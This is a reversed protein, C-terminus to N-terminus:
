FRTFHAERRSRLDNIDPYFGPPPPPPMHSTEGFIFGPPPPPPMGSSFSASDYPPIGNSRSEERLSEEMARRVQEEESMGPPVYENYQERARAYGSPEARPTFRPTSISPFLIGKAISYVLDMIWKLPGKVYAMGVLIGALHGYFSANPVFLQILLLEVWVAYRAPVIIPIGMVQTLYNSDYYTTLVKLAFIVGSFGVACQDYDGLHEIALVNLAVLVANTLITFIALIYAFKVSGFRRELSRGKIAFSVMNYYLHWDDAHEFAAFILRSYERRTWVNYASVCVHSPKYWFKLLRLFIAVQLGITGLTVPPINEYGIVGFIQYLLLMIGLGPQRRRGPYM